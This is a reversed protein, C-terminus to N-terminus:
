ARRFAKLIEEGYARIKWDELIGTKELEDLTKPYPSLLALEELVKRNLIHSPDTGRMGAKQKRWGKLVETARRVSDPLKIRKPTPIGEMKSARRLVEFLAKGYRNALKRPLGGKAAMEENNRPPTKALFLLERNGLVKFSPVNRKEAIEERWIFLERLRRRAVEDLRGAGKIKAWDTEPTKLTPDGEENQIRRLESEVELHALDDRGELEEELCDLLALLFHTDMQAYRMQSESLPRIGWNSLTQAKNLQVGLRSEVLAALGTAEEGLTLALVRTDALGRVRLDFDRRLMILDYGADHFVKILEPDEFEKFLPELDLGALPDVLFDQEAATVQILCVEEKYSHMPNAETDVAIRDCEEMCDLLEDLSKEDAVLTPLPIRELDM